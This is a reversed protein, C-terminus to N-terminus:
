GPELGPRVCVPVVGSWALATQEIVVVRRQDAPAWRDGVPWLRGVEAGTPARVAIRTGVANWNQGCSRSVVSGPFWSARLTTTLAAHMLCLVFFASGVVPGFNGRRPLPSASRDGRAAGSVPLVVQDAGAGKELRKVSM